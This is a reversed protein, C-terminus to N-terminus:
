EQLKQLVVRYADTWSTTSLREQREIAKVKASVADAIQQKFHRLESVTKCRFDAGVFGPIDRSVYYDTLQRFLAAAPTDAPAGGSAKVMLMRKAFEGVVTNQKARSVEEITRTASELSPNRHAADVCAAVTRSGLQETLSNDQKAAARWIETATRDVPITEATYCASVARWGGTNPSRQSVSTGM